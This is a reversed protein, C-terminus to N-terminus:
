TLREEFLQYQDQNLSDSWQDVVAWSECVQTQSADRVKQSIIEGREASFSWRLERLLLSVHETNETTFTHSPEPFVQISVHDGFLGFGGHVVVVIFQVLIFALHSPEHMCRADIVFFVNVDPWGGFSSRYGRKEEKKSRM